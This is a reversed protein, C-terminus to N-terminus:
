DSKDDDKEREKSIQKKTKNKLVMFLKQLLEKIEEVKELYGDIELNINSEKIKKKKRKKKNRKKIKEVEWPLATSRSNIAADPISPGLGLAAAKRTRTFPSSERALLWDRFKIM